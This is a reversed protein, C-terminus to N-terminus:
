GKAILNEAMRRLEPTTELQRHAAAKFEEFSHGVRPDALCGAFVKQDCLHWLRRVTYRPVSIGKM